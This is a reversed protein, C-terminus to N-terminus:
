ESVQRPLTRGQAYTVEIYLDDEIAVGNADLDFLTLPKVDYWLVLAVQASAMDSRRVDRLKIARMVRQGQENPLTRWVRLRVPQKDPWSKSSEIGTNYHAPVCQGKPAAMGFGRGSKRAQKPAAMTYSTHRSCRPPWGLISEIRQDIIEDPLAAAIQSASARSRYRGWHRQLIRKIRKLIRAM